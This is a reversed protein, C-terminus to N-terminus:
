QLQQQLSAIKEWTRSYDFLHIAPLQGIRKPDVNSFKESKNLLYMLEHKIKISKRKSIAM